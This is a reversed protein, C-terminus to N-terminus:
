GLVWTYDALVGSKGKVIVLGPTDSAGSSALRRELNRYDSASLIFGGNSVDVGQKIARNIDPDLSGTIYIGSGMEEPLHLEIYGATYKPNWNRFNQTGLFIGDSPSAKDGESAKPAQNVGTTCKYSAARSFASGDSKLLDLTNAEKDILVAYSFEGAAGSLYSELTGSSQRVSPMSRDPQGGPQRSLNNVQDELAGIRGNYFQKKEQELAAITKQKDALSIELELGRKEAEIRAHNSYANAIEVFSNKTWSAADYVGRSIVEVSAKVHEYTWQPARVGAATLVLVGGFATARMTKGFGPPNKFGGLILSGTKKAVSYVARGGYWAGVLVTAGAGAAGIASWKAGTKIAGGISM